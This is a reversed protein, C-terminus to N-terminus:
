ESIKSGTTMMFTYEEHICLYAHLGKESVSNSYLLM